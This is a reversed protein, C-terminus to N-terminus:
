GNKVDKYILVFEPNNITNLLCKWSSEPDEHIVISPKNTAYCKYHATHPRPLNGDKYEPIIERLMSKTVEKTNGYAIVNKIEINFTKIMLGKSDPHKLNDYIHDLISMQEDTLLIMYYNLDANVVIKRM